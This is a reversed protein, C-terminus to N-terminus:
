GKASTLSALFDFTEPKGFGKEEAHSGCLAVFAILGTKDLNLHRMMKWFCKGDAEQQFRDV